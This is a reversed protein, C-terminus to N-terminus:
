KTKNKNTDRKKIAERIKECDNKLTEYLLQNNYFPLMKEGHCNRLKKGSKCPCLFHGRYRNVIVFQMIDYAEQADNADLLEQYSELVGDLGHSREGYPFEGYRTYYEYTFYYAEVYKDMWRLLDFGDAFDALIKVDTELCLKGNTYYHHYTPNIRKQTDIVYPLKSSAIPIVIEIAYDDFVQFNGYEKHVTFSGGLRLETESEDIIRINPYVKQFAKLQAKIQQASKVIMVNEM